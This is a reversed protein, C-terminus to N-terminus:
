FVSLFNERLDDIIKQDINLFTKRFAELLASVPMNMFGTTIDTKGTDTTRETKEHGVASSGGAENLKERGNKNETTRASQVTDSTGLRTSHTLEDQRGKETWDDDYVDTSNVQKDSKTSQHQDTHTKTDNDTRLNRTMNTTKNNTSDTTVNTDTDEKHTDDTERNKVTEMDRRHFLDHTTTNNTKTTEDRTATGDHDKTENDKFDTTVTSDLKHTSNGYDWTVSTLYDARIKPLGDGADAGSSTGGTLQTQPTDAYDKRASSNTTEKLDTVVTTKATDEKTEKWKQTDDQDLTKTGDDTITGDDHNYGTETTTETQNDKLTKTVLGDTNELQHFTTNEVTDQTGTELIDTEKNEDTTTWINETLATHEDRTTTSDDTGDKNYVTGVTKDLNETSKVGTNAATDAYQTNESVFDRIVNNTKATDSSLSKLLNEISRGNTTISHNLLPNFKILESAYLQNYYPMIRALQENLYWIFRDPTESGIQYFWYYRLIKDCLEKKHEKVHTDWSDDFVNYGRKVLDGLTPYRNTPNWTQFM